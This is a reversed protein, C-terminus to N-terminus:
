KGEWVSLLKKALYRASGQDRTSGRRRKRDLLKTAPYHAILGDRRLHEGSGHISGVSTENVRNASVCKSVMECARFVDRLALRYAADTMDPYMLSVITPPCGEKSSAVQLM